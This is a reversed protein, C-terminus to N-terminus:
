QVGYSLQTMTQEVGFLELIPTHFWLFPSLGGEPLRYCSRSANAFHKFANPEDLCSTIVRSHVSVNPFETQAYRM